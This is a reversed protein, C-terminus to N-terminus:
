PEEVSLDRGAKELEKPTFAGHQLEWEDLFTGLAKARVTPDTRPTAAEFKAWRDIMDQIAAVTNERETPKVEDRWMRMLKLIGDFEQSLDVVRVIFQDGLGQRKMLSAISFIETGRAQPPSSKGFLAYVAARESTVLCALPSSSRLRTGEETLSLAVAAIQQPTGALIQRWELFPQPVPQQTSIWRELTGRAREIRSPDDLIKKAALANLTVSLADNFLHDSYTIGDLISGRGAIFERSTTDTSEDPADVMSRNPLPDVGSVFLNDAQPVHSTPLPERVAESGELVRPIAGRAKPLSKITRKRGKNSLSKM